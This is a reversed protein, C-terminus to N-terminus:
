SFNYSVYKDDLKFVGRGGKQSHMTANLSLFSILVCMILISVNLPYFTLLNFAFMFFFFSFFFFFFFFFVPVHVQNKEEAQDDTILSNGRTGDQNESSNFGM